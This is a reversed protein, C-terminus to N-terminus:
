YAYPRQPKGTGGAFGIFPATSSPEESSVGGGNSAAQARLLLPRHALDEITRSRM